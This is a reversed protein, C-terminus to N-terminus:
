ARPHGIQAFYRRSIDEATDDAKVRVLADNYLIHYPHGTAMRFAQCERAAVSISVGSRATLVFEVDSNKLEM